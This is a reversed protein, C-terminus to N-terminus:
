KFFVRIQSNKVNVIVLQFISNDVLLSGMLQRAKMKKEEELELKSFIQCLTCSVIQIQYGRKFIFYVVLIICFSKKSKKLM